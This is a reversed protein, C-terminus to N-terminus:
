IRVRGHWLKEREERYNYTNKELNPYSSRGGGNRKRVFDNELTGTHCFVDIM